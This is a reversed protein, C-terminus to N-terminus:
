NELSWATRNGVGLFGMEVREGERATKWTLGGSHTVYGLM